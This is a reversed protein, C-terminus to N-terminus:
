IVKDLEGLNDITKWAESEIKSGKFTVGHKTKKFLEIDNDGDGVCVCETIDIGLKRCFDDLIAVKAYKDDGLCKIDMLNDENDFVLTNTAGALEIGLDKSVLDVLIDVSGSILAVKYGKSAALRVIEIAGDAYNYKSLIKIIESRSTKKNRQFLRLLESTWVEYSIKGQFYEDYLKQDEEPTVGMALNFDYWSNNTILTRDLDFCILKIESM